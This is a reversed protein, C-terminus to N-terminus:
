GACAKRANFRVTIREGYYDPPYNEFPEAQRVARKARDSAAKVVPDSSNEGSAEPQGIVRGSSAVRFAVRIDVNSGGEVECNPNWRRELDAALSAFANAALGTAPGVAPRADVATEARSPGRQASSRPKGAARRPQISAALADLDLGPSESRKAPTPKPTPEAAKPAPKPAPEPDPAPPAVAEPTAEPVPDETLALQEDPAQEAPRVDAFPADSVINVPVVTGIPIPKSMWPWAVLAGALLGGHLLASVLLSPTMQTRERQM